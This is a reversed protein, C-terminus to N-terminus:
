ENIIYKVCKETFRSYDKLFNLFNDYLVGNKECDKIMSIEKIICVSCLSGKNLVDITATGLIFNSNLDVIVFIYHDHNLKMFLEDPSLDNIMKINSESLLSTLNYYSNKLDDHELKRFHIPIGKLFFM